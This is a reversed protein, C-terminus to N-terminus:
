YNIYIEEWNENEISELYLEEGYKDGLEEKIENIEKDEKVSDNYEEIEYDVSPKWDISALVKLLAEKDDRAKFKSKWNEGEDIFFSRYQKEKGEKEEWLTLSLTDNNLNIQEKVAEDNFWHQNLLKKIAKKLSEKDNYLKRDFGYWGESHYSIPNLECLNWDKGKFTISSNSRTNIAENLSDGKGISVIRKIFTM